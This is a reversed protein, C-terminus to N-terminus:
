QYSTYVANNLSKAKDFANRADSKRSLRLLAEGKHNWTDSVWPDIDTSRNYCELAEQYQGSKYLIFGKTDFSSANRPDLELSKEVTNMAEEDRDLNAYIWAKYNWADADTPRLKIVEDFCIIAKKYDKLLELSSGKGYWALDNSPAMELVKDYVKIADEYRNLASLACGILYQKEPDNPDVVVEIVKNYFRVAETDNGLKRLTIAKNLLSYTYHADLDLASDFYKLAEEYRILNFLANGKANWYDPVEPDLKIAEEFYPLAEEYRQLSVLSNGKGIFSIVYNGDVKIARDYCRAAEEYNQLREYTWGLNHWGNPDEPYLDTFQKYNKLSEEYQKLIGQIYAIYFSANGQPDLQRAREYSSLAQQYDEMGTYAEAIDYLILAISLKDDSKKTVDLLENFYSIAKEFNKSELEKKGKNRIEQGKDTYQVTGSVKAKQSWYEAELKIREAIERSPSEKTVKNLIQAIESYLTTMQDYKQEKTYEKEIELVTKQLETLIENAYRLDKKSIVLLRSKIKKYKLEAVNKPKFKNFIQGFIDYGM